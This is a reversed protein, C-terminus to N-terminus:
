RAAPSWSGPTIDASTFAGYLITGTDTASGFQAVSNVGLGVSNPLTLTQGSAASLTSTTNDAAINKCTPPSTARLTGGEYSQAPASPTSTARPRM